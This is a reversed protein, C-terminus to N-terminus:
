NSDNVSKLNRRLEVFANGRNRWQSKSSLTVARPKESPRNWSRGIGPVERPNKKNSNLELKRQVKFLNEVNSQPAGLETRENSM